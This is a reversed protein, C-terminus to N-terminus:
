LHKKKFIIKYKAQSGAQQAQEKGNGVVSPNKFHLTCALRWSKSGQGLIGFTKSVIKHVNLVKSCVLDVQDLHLHWLWQYEGLLRILPGLRLCPM